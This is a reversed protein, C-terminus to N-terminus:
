NSQSKVFGSLMSLVETILKDIMGPSLGDGCIERMAATGHHRALAYFDGNGAMSERLHYLEALLEGARRKTTSTVAFGARREALALGLASAMGAVM